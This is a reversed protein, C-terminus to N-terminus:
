RKHPVGPPVSSGPPPPRAPGPPPPASAQPYPYATAGHGGPQGQTYPPPAQPYGPQPPYAQPANPNPQPGLPYAQPYAQPPYGGPPPQMIPRQFFFYVKYTITGLGVTIIEPSELMCALEWGRNGMETFM